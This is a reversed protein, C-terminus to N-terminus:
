VYEKNYKWFACTAIVHYNENEIKETALHKFTLEVPNRRLNELENKDNMKFSVVKSNIFREHKRAGTVEDTEFEDENEMEYLLRADAFPEEVDRQLLDDIKSYSIFM